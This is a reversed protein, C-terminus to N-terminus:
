KKYALKPYKINKRIWKMIVSDGGPFEPKVKVTYYDYKKKQYNNSKIQGKQSYSYNIFSITIFIIIFVRKM